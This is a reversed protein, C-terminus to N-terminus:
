GNATHRRALDARSVVGLKRYIRTLNAEVARVSVYLRDAIEKNSLGKAVLEAVRRETESLEDSAPGRGPIRALEARAMGAWQPAGLQDFLQLAATLAERAVRRNKARREIRGQALLTRSLEFPQPLREHAAIARALHGRAEDINGRASAVLAQGREAVAEHWARGSVRGKEAVFTITEEARELRGVAVLAEIENQVVNSVSLEGVGMAELESRAPSLWELARVPDGGCLEAFGLVGACRVVVPRDGGGEATRYAREGLARADEIAGQHALVLSLMMETAAQEQVVGGQRTLTVAERGHTLADAWNGARLELEALRFLVHFAGPEDGLERVRQLERVFLPRATELEDTVLAIVGLQVSPRLHPPISGIRAEIELAREMAPRDWPMGVIAQVHCLEGIAIALKEEDGSEEALRASIRCHELSGPLDGAIWTFVGLATHIDATLALDGEAEDLAQECLRIAEATSDNMTHAIRWLLAARERGQALQHILRELLERGRAPHGEAVHHEAADVLRRKRDVLAGEPTLRAAAEGLEAALGPAGRAAAARSSAELENAVAADPQELGRALHVAREAPDAAVAALRRHADRQEGPLARGFTVSALLPHTFRLRRGTVELLALDLSMRLGDRRGAAREVLEPTPHVSAAAILLTERCVAPLGAIRADLAETLSPPVTLEGGSALSPAIELAYYPNGDTILELQLLAPRPLGLELRARLLEDLGAADLPGIHVVELADPPLGRALGLPPSEHRRARRAVLIRVPVGGLRRAVYELVRASPADLWQVDDVAIVLPRPGQAMSRVVALAARSIALENAGGEAPARQLAVTLATRQAEPLETIATLGVSEFLDALAAYPLAAENEAPAAVLVSSGKARAVEVATRWLTTKGIGASGDLVLARPSAETAEILRRVAELEGERGVIGAHM